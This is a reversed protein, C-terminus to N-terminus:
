GQFVRTMDNWMAFLMLGVLLVFGVAQARERYRAELPRGFVAEIAFFFLHGGDLIPIPLLNLVFLNISIVAVFMLLADLGAEAQRGGQRVIEIPGGIEQAPIKGTLLKFLGVVIMESWGWTREGANSLAEVFGVSRVEFAREIGIVYTEEGLDEGFINKTPIKKPTLEVKHVADGRNFAVTLLQGESGRITNSLEEWGGIPTDDVSVIVDGEQLGAAAAPMEDSVGGVKAAASPEHVGFVFFTVWFLLFGLLLNAAPGALVIALRKWLSQCQFAILREAETLEEEPDEGIMKVFGGFPIASIAYETGAFTRSVLKPGFGISFKVVGVGCRKAVLFHGLEHFVILFGLVIIGTVITTIM